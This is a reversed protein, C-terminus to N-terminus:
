ISLNDQGDNPCFVRDNIHFVQRRFKNLAPAPGQAVLIEDNIYVNAYRLAPARQQLQTPPCLMVMAKPLRNAHLDPPSVTITLHGDWPAATASSVELPHSPPDWMSHSYLNALNVITEM